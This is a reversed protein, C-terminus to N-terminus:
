SSGLPSSLHHHDPNLQPTSVKPISDTESGAMSATTRASVTAEVADDPVPVAKVMDRALEEAKGLASSSAALDALHTTRLTTVSAGAINILVKASDILMATNSSPLCSSMALQAANLAIPLIYHSGFSWVLGFISTPTLM